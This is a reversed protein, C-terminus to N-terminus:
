DLGSPFRSRCTKINPTRVARWRRSKAFRTKSPSTTQPLGRSLTGVELGIAPSVNSAPSNRTLSVRRVAPLSLKRSVFLNIRPFVSCDLRTVVACDFCGSRVRGADSQHGTRLLGKCFSTTSVVPPGDAPVLEHWWRFPQLRRYRLDHLVFRKRSESGDLLFRVRDLVSDDKAPTPSRFQGSEIM